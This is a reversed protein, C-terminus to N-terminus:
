AAMMPSRAAPPAKITSSRSPSLKASPPPPIRLIIQTTGDATSGAVLGTTAAAITNVNTTIASGSLLNAVVPDILVPSSSSAFSIADIVLEFDSANNALTVARINRGPLNVTGSGASFREPSIVENLNGQEDETTYRVEIPQQSLYSVQVNAVRQNFQISIEPSCGACEHSTAYVSARMAGGLTANRLAEGGSITASQARAPPQATDFRAPGAFDEFDIKHNQAFLPGAFLCVAAIALLLHIRTRM